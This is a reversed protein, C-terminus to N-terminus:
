GGKKKKKLTILRKVTATYVNHLVYVNYYCQWLWIQRQAQKLVGRWGCTAGTLLLGPPLSNWLQVAVVQWSRRFKGLTKFNCPDIFRLHAALTGPISVVLSVVLILMVFSLVTIRCIEEVREMSSVVLWVLLRLVVVILCRSFLQAVPRNFEIKYIILANCIVLHQELTCFIGMSGYEYTQVM